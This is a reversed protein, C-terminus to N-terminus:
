VATQRELWGTRAGAAATTAGAPADKGPAVAASPSRRDSPHQIVMNFATMFM